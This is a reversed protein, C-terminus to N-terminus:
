RISRFLQQYLEFMKQECTGYYFNYKVFNYADYAIQKREPVNNILYDIHHKWDRPENVLMGTKGHSITNVYPYIADAISPISLMSYELYKLNSKSENFENDKGIILGIDIHLNNLTPYYQNLNCWPIITAVDKLEDPCFGFCILEIRNKQVNKILYKILTESLDGKHTITGTLGIRVKDFKEHEEPKFPYFTDLMNPIVITNANFNKKVYEALPVTSCTVLNSKSLSTAHDFLRKNTWFERATNYYPIVFLNDDLDVILKKKNSKLFPIFDKHIFETEPRQLFFYDNYYNHIEMVIPIQETMTVYKIHAKLFKYPLQSRYYACAGDSRNYILIKKDGIM